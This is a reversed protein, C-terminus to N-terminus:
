LFVRKKHDKLPKIRKDKIKQKQTLIEPRAAAPPLSRGAM